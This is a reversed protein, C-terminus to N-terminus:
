FKTKKLRKLNRGQYPFLAIAEETYYHHNELLALQRKYFSELDAESINKGHLEEMLKNAERHYVAWPSGLSSLDADAIVMSLICDKGRSGVAQSVSDSEIMIATSLIMEKVSDIDCDAFLNYDRMVKEAIASSAAENAVPGLLQTIDHFAAAIEILLLDRNSIEGKFVKTKGIATAADIVQKQHDSNHYALPTKGDVDYTKVIEEKAFSLIEIITTRREVSTDMEISQKKQRIIERMEGFEFEEGRCFFERCVEPRHQHISCKGKVLYACSGDTNQALFNAGCEAATDFNEITAVDQFITEYRGSLYEDQNLNIAFLQCCLGCQSCIPAQVKM